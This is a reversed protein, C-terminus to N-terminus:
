LELRVLRELEWQHEVILSDSRPRWGKLNEEGRVYAFNTSGGGGGSGGSATSADLLRRSRRTAKESVQYIQLDYVTTVRNVDQPRCWSGFLQKISRPVTLKTDRPYIVLALDKTVCVPQCCGEIDVYCTVTLYVREGTPTVTNLLPSEHLSSDWSAEFRTYVREDGELGSSAGSQSSSLNGAPILSLSQVRS